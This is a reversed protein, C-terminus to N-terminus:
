GFAPPLVSTYYQFSILQLPTTVTIFFVANQVHDVSGSTTKVSFNGKAVVVWCTSGDAAPISVYQSINAAAVQQPQLCTISGSVTVGSLNSLFGHVFNLADTASVASGAPVPSPVTSGSVASGCTAYSKSALSGTM